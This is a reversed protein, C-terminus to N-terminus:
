VLCVMWCRWSPSTVAANFKQEGLGSLSYVQSQRLAWGPTSMNTERPKFSPRSPHMKGNHFMCQRVAAFPGVVRPSSAHASHMVRWTVDQIFGCGAPNLLFALPFARGVFPRHQVEHGLVDVHEVM